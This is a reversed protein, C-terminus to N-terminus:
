LGYRGFGAPTEIARVRNNADARRSCFTRITLAYCPFFFITLAYCPFFFM